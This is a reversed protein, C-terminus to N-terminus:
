LFLRGRSVLDFLTRYRDESERLAAETQKRETVVVRMDIAGALGDTRSLESSDTVGLVNGHTSAPSSASGVTSASEGNM